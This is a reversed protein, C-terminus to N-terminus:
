RMHRASRTPWARITRSAPRCTGHPQDAPQSRARAVRRAKRVLGWYDFIREYTGDAMVAKLAGQVPKALGNDKPMAIGYAAVGYQKGTMEFQGDSQEVAYAAPPSDAM